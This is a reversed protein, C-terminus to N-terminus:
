RLLKVKPLEWAKNKLNEFAARNVAITEIEESTLYDYVTYEKYPELLKSITKFETKNWM